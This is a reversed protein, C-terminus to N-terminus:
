KKIKRLQRQYQIAFRHAEDRVQILLDQNNKIFEALKKNARNFIFENKKRGAGKAIGIVTIASKLNLISSKNNIARRAANVQPKGGDVLIIDPLPWEPHKLRRSIIEELCDVDSQGTVTKIKFKRYASKISGKNDFVVMSGVKGSEGLNSIDYGEVRTILSQHNTILIKKNFFDKNILTIDHITQLHKIQDRLRAAEEYHRSKSAIKMQKKLNTILRTKHGRLFMTLLKIVKQQYQKPNIEGTCVGLCQGIQYDFCPKKHKPDCRSISFLKHLIKLMEKTKIGPYPGFLSKLNLISSKHNKKGRSSDGSLSEPLKTNSTAPTRKSLSQSSAPNDIEHQRITILKPFPEKTLMLYNWSKNDKGIVNYKPQHKKIYISELIIAEIVSDTPKFKIDTVQDIMDEIPRPSRRSQSAPFYSKVRNKLSTAKGIYILEKQRNYFLYIGPSSPLSKIKRSINSMSFICSVLYLKWILELNWIAIVM